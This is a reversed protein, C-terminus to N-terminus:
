LRSFRLDRDNKSQDLGGGNGFKRGVQEKTLGRMLWFLISIHLVDLSKLDEEIDM